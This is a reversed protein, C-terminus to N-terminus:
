IPNPIEDQQPIPIPIPDPLNNQVRLIPIPDPIFTKYYNKCLSHNFQFVNNPGCIIVVVTVNVM